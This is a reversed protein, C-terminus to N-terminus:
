YKFVVHLKPSNQFSILARESLFISGMNQVRNGLNLSIHRKLIAINQIPRMEVITM